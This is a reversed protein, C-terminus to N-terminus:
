RIEDWRGAARVTYEIRCESILQPEQGPPPKSLIQISDAKLSETGGAVRPAQRSGFARIRQGTQVQDLLSRQGSLVDYHGPNVEM